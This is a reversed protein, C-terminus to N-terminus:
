SEESNDDSDRRNKTPDYDPHDEPETRHDPEYAAYSNRGESFDRYDRDHRDM